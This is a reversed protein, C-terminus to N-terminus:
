QSKVGISAIRLMVLCVATRRHIQRVFQSLNLGAEQGVQKHDCAIWQSIRFHEKVPASDQGDDLVPLKM